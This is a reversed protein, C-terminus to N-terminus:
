KKLIVDEIRELLRASIIEAIQSSETDPRIIGQQKMKKQQVFDRLYSSVLPNSNNSNQFM